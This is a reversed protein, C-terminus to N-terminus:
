SFVLKWRLPCLIVEQNMITRSRIYLHKRIKDTFANFSIELVSSLGLVVEMCMDDFISYPTGVLASFKFKLYIVKKYSFIDFNQNLWLAAMQSNHISYSMLYIDEEAKSPCKREKSTIKLWSKCLEAFITFIYSKLHNYVVIM